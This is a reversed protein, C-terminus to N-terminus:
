SGKIARRKAPPLAQQAVEIAQELRERILQTADEPSLGDLEEPAISPALHLRLPYPRPLKQDRPWSEFTGAIGAPIIPVRARTALAAIGPKLEQLTGDPSRTGEPFFTVIGGAKLRRLTEKFGQSGFGDRQIPFAGYFRLFGGFKPSFLSSRAVFNVPRRVGSGLVLVDWFSMHNSVLLAAGREPVNEQGSVHFGGYCAAFARILWQTFRYGVRRSWPRDFRPVEDPDRRRTSPTASEPATM